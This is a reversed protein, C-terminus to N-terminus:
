GAARAHRPRGSATRTACYWATATGVPGPLLQRRRGRARVSVVGHDEALRAAYAGLRLGDLWAALETDVHAGAPAAAVAPAPVPPAPAPATVLCCPRSGELNHNRYPHQKGGTAATVEAAVRGLIFDVDEGPTALHKLLSATFM